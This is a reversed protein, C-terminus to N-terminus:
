IIKIGKKSSTIAPCVHSQTGVRKNKWGLIAMIIVPHFMFKVSALCVIEKWLRSFFPLLVENRASSQRRNKFRSENQMHPKDLRMTSFQDLAAAIKPQPQRQGQVKKEVYASWQKHNSQRKKQRTTALDKLMKRPCINGTTSPILNSM